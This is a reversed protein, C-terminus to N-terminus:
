LQAHHRLIRDLGTLVLDPAVFIPQKLNNEFFVYDGGCLVVQVAAYHQQYQAIIGDIEAVMGNLVGSQMCTETTNGILNAQAIPVVLPLAQTFTHMAKYRMAMGPAISGGHYAGSSDIFETTLCTGADIVLCNQNTFLEYAGCAAALRDMGLTHPTAYRITIPVPLAPSLIIKKGPASSWAIIEEPPTSVSSVLLHEHTSHTVFQKLAATKKM